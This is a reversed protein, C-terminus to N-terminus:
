TITELFKKSILEKNFKKISERGSKKMSIRLNDDEMLETLKREFLLDDYMPILYGNNGDEIIESPGAICDYAIVPLGASMAEGLVNPFGESSSTFAFIKSKSYFKDVDNRKGVLLVRGELNLDKVLKLLLVKNKQKKSDDGVLILKWNSNNINSFMKILRDQHKTKILRGVMLVINEKITDDKIIIDRIPNPIVYISLKKFHDQYIKKAKQTQLILGTARPYLIKRLFNQLKGLNRLPQSRDAIFLPFKLGFTAIIVLNNWYEGFSLMTDPHIDIIKKRLFYITRLTYLFRYKKNFKFNPIHISVSKPLEYFIGRNLGYM